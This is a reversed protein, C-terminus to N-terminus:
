QLKFEMWIDQYVSEYEGVDMVFEKTALLEEPVNLADLALLDESILETAALNPNTYWQNEAVHAAVEPRLLYDIFIHANDPHPANAPIALSDIGFGIGEQPFVCKLQPNEMECIVAYPTFMYAVAVEGSLLQMYATDYDLV